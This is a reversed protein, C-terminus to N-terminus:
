SIKHRAHLDRMIRELRNKKHADYEDDEEDSLLQDDPCPAVDVGHNVGEGFHEDDEYDEVEGGEAMMPPRPKPPPFGPYGIIQGISQRDEGAVGGDAMKKKHMIMLAVPHMGGHAMLPMDDEDDEDMVAKHEMPEHHPHLKENEEMHKVHGGHAYGGMAMKKKKMAHRKASYAIALAQKQPKGSDMEAKVNHSFAEKSKGHMLPM